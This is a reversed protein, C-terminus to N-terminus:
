GDMISVDYQVVEMLIRGGPRVLNKMLSLYSSFIFFFVYTQM